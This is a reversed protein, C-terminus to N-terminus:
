ARVGDPWPAIDNWRRDMSMAKSAITEVAEELSRTATATETLSVLIKGKVQDRGTALKRGVRAKSTLVLDPTTWVCWRPTTMDFVLLFAYRGADVIRRLALEDLIFLDRESLDSRYRDWGVYSQRKTKFEIELLRDGPGLVQFDLRDTSSTSNRLLTLGEHRDLGRAVRAELLHRRGLDVRWDDPRRARM